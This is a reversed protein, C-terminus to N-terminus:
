NVAEELAKGAKFKVVKKAKINIAEGTRPNRGIRAKRKNISFTGFGILSVKDGKKLCSQMSSLVSNVATTAQAKSIDSAKAVNDVLDGKNM